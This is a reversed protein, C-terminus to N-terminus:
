RQTRRETAGTLWPGDSAAKLVGFEDHPDAVGV